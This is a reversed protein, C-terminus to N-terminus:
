SHLNVSPHEPDLITTATNQGLDVVPAIPQVHKVHLHGSGEVKGSMSVILHPVPMFPKPMEVEFHKLLDLMLLHHTPHWLIVMDLLQAVGAHHGLWLPLRKGM